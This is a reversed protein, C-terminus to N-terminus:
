LTVQTQLGRCKEWDAPRVREDGRTPVRGTRKPVLEFVVRDHLM